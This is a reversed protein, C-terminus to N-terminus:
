CTKEMEELVSLASDLYGMKCFAHVIINHPVVDPVIGLSAPLEQFFGAIKDFKKSNVCASLLANFSSVTRECNLKPM